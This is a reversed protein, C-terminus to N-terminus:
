VREGRKQRELLPPLATRRAGREFTTFLTCRMDCIATRQAGSTPHTKAQAKLANELVLPYLTFFFVYVLLILGEGCSNLNSLSPSVHPAWVTCEAGRGLYIM